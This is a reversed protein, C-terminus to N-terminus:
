PVIIQDGKQIKPINSGDPELKKLDFIITEGNRILKIKKWRFSEAFGGALDIAQMLNINERFPFENPYNVEGMVTFIPAPCPNDGNSRIRVKLTVKIKEQAYAKTMAEALEEETLGVAAVPQNLSSMSVHGSKSVIYSSSIELGAEAAEIRFFAGPWIREATEAPLIVAVISFPASQKETRFAAAISKTLNSPTLGKAAVPASLGPVAIFGSHDLKLSELLSKEARNATQRIELFVSDGAKLPPDDQAHLPFAATLFISLLHVPLCPKM